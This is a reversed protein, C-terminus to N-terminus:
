KFTLYNMFMNPPSYLFDFNEGNLSKNFIIWELFISTKKKGLKDFNLVIIIALVINISELYNFLNIKLGIKKSVINRISYFLGYNSGFLDAYCM